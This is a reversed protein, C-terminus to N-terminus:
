QQTDEAAMVDATHVRRRQETRRDAEDELLMGLKVLWGTLANLDNQTLYRLQLDATLPLSRWMYTPIAARLLHPLQHEAWVAEENGMHGLNAHLWDLQNNFSLPLQCSACRVIVRTGNRRPKGVAGCASCTAHMSRVAKRAFGWPVPDAIATPRSASHAAHSLLEADFSKGTTLLYQQACRKAIDAWPGSVDPDLMHEDIRM